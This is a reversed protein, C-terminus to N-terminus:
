GGEQRKWEQYATLAAERDSFEEGEGSDWENGALQWSDTGSSVVWRDSGATKRMVYVSEEKDVLFVEAMELWWRDREIRQEELLDEENERVWDAHREAMIRATNQSDSYGEGHINAGKLVRWFWEVEGQFEQEVLEIDFGKYKFSVKDFIRVKGGQKEQVSASELVEQTIKGIAADM